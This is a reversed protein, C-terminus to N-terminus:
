AADGGVIRGADPDSPQDPASNLGSTGLLNLVQAVAPVSGEEPWAAVDAVPLGLVKALHADSSLALRARLARKSMRSDVRAAIAQRETQIPKPGFVAPLLEHRSVAGDTAVDIQIAREARIATTGKEWQSVLGQTAPTGSETLLAAFAAQSLGKEKRYTPIDRRWTHAGRICLDITGSNSFSSRM